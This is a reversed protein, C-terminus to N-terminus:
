QGGENLFAERSPLWCRNATSLQHVPPQHDLCLQMAQNCRASFSCGKPPDILSPPSGAIVQLGESKAFQRSPLSALLGQTYPHSPNQFIDAVNGQEVIQGAYMVAVRQAIQAVVALDHTIMLLGMQRERQLSKLLALVEAQVTVDLATTPEDAILLEPDCIIAMAIMVRQLMGGSLEFPYQKMRKAPQTLQLQTLLGEVQNMGQKKGINRHQRLVEFIQQGITMTPNLASMPNQFIMALRNGRWQRWQKESQHLLPQGALMVEGRLEARPPLLGCLSLATMSKGCGSEGVIALTEGKELHFDVRRLAQVVGARTALNLQLNRVSLLPTM